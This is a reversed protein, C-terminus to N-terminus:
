SLDATGLPESNFSSKNPRKVHSRGLGKTRDEEESEERAWLRATTGLVTPLRGTVANQLLWCKLVKNKPKTRRLKRKEKRKEM